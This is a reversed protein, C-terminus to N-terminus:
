LKNMQNIKYLIILCDLMEEDTLLKLGDFIYIWFDCNIKTKCTLINYNKYESHTYEIAFYSSEKSYFNINSEQKYPYKIYAPCRILTKYVQFNDHLLSINEKDIRIDSEWKFWVPLKLCVSGSYDKNLDKTLAPLVDLNKWLKKLARETIKM